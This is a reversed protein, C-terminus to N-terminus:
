APPKYIYVNQSVGNVLVFVKRSPSYRFRGYTGWQQQVGPDDGSATLKNWAATGPNFTYVDRGGGWAFFQDRSDVYVFGPRKGINNPATGSTAIEAYTQSMTLSLPQGINWRRMAYSGDTNMYMVYLHNRARDIDTGGGAEYNNLGYTKWTNTDPDYEAIKGQEAAVNWVHGAADLATQGRGGVGAPKDALRSWLGTTPSYCSVVPSTMQANPYYTGYGIYCYRDRKKDVFVGGYTHSSRPQQLDLQSVVPEVFCKDYAVYEGNMVTDPLSLAGKPYFGCSDIRRDNWGAGPTDGTAGGSMETLRKWKMEGLDFAFINNYWSDGHGGGYVVMRDRVEDYAGGSWATIVSSCAYSNYPAPCVDKMMTAPLAKWSNVPMAAVIDDIAGPTPTTVPALEFIATAALASSLSVNCSPNAGSCAGSWGKFNYGSAPAATLTVSTGGAYPETCDAGCSIGAPASTVVGEGSKTVSLTYTTSTSEFIATVSRAMTMSVSCSVSTGACAGSWGKFSNGNAPAATLTVTTGSAYPESCDTGCAIGAPMSSVTGSGTKTVGLTYTTAPKGGPWKRSGDELDTTAAAPKETATAALASEGSAVAAQASDAPSASSATGQGGGCAALFLTM